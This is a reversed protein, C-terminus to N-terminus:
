FHPRFSRNEGLLQKRLTSQRHLLPSKFRIAYVVMGNLVPIRRSPTARFGALPKGALSRPCITIKKGPNLMALEYVVDQIKIRCSFPTPLTAGGDFLVAVELDPEGDVLHDVHWTMDQPFIQMEKEQAM